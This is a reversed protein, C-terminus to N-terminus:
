SLQLGEFPLVNDEKESVQCELFPPPHTINTELRQIHRVDCFIITELM